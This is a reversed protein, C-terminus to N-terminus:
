GDNILIQSSSYRRLKDLVPSAVTRLYVTRAKQILLNIHEDKSVWHQAVCQAVAGVNFGLFWATPFTIIMVSCFKSEGDANHLFHNKRCCIEHANSQNMHRNNGLLAQFKSSIQITKSHSASRQRGITEMCFTNAQVFESWESVNRSVLQFQQATSETITLIDNVLTVVWIAIANDLAHITSASM